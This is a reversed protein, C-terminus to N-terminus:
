LGTERFDSIEFEKLYELRIKRYEEWIKLINTNAHVVIHLIFFKSSNFTDEKKISCGLKVAVEKIKKLDNYNAFKFQMDEEYDQIPAVYSASIIQVMKKEEANVNFSVLKAKMRVFRVVTPEDLKVEQNIIWHEQTVLSDLVYKKDYLEKPLVVNSSNITSEDVSYIYGILPVDLSNQEYLLETFNENIATLCEEVSPSLCIRQIETNEWEARSKPIRPSLSDHLLKELSIHYLM